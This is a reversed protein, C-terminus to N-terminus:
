RTGSIWIVDVLREIDVAAESFSKYGTSAREDDAAAIEPRVTGTIQVSDIEEDGGSRARKAFRRQIYLIGQDVYRILASEKPGGAKLPSNRPRPLAGNTSSSAHSSPPPSLLASELFGGGESSAQPTSM